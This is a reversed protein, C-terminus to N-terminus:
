MAASPLRYHGCLYIEEQVGGVGGPRGCLSSSGVTTQTSPRGVSFGHSTADAVRRLEPTVGRAETRAHVRTHQHRRIHVHVCACFCLFLARVSACV